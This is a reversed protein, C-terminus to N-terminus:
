KDKSPSQSIFLIQKKCILSILVWHPLHSASQWMVLFHSPSITATTTGLSTCRTYMGKQGYQSYAMHGATDLPINAFFHWPGTLPLIQAQLYHNFLSSWSVLFPMQNLLFVFIYIELGFQLLIAWFAPLWFFLSPPYNCGNLSSDLYHGCHHFPHVLNLAQVSASNDPYLYIYPSILSSIHTGLM